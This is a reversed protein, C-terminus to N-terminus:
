FDADHGHAPGAPLDTGDDWANDWGDTGAPEHQYLDDSAGSGFNDDAATPGMDFPDAAGDETADGADDGPLDADPDGAGFALDAGDDVPGTLYSSLYGVADAHGDPPPAGPGAAGQGYDLTRTDAVLM